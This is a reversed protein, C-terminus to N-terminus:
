RETSAPPVNRAVFERFNDFNIYDFDRTVSRKHGTVEVTVDQAAAIRRLQDASVPYYAREDYVCPGQECDSDQRIDKKAASFTMEERDAMVTLSQGEKIDLRFNSTWHVFLEYRATDGTGTKEASLALDGGVPHGGVVNRGMRTTSHSCAASLAVLVGVGVISFRM